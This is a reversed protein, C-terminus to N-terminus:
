KDESRADTWGSRGQGVEDDDAGPEEAQGDGLAAGGLQAQPHEHELATVVQAAVRVALRVGLGPDLHVDVASM